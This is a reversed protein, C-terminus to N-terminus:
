GKAAAARKGGPEEKDACPEAALGFLRGQRWWAHPLVPLTPVWVILYFCRTKQLTDFDM